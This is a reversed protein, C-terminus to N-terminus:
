PMDVPVWLSPAFGPKSPDQSQPYEPQGSKLTSIKQRLVEDLYGQTAQPGFATGDSLRYGTPSSPEKVLGLLAAHQDSGHEVFDSLPKKPSM